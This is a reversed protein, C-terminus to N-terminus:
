IIRKMMAQIASEAKKHDSKYAWIGKINNM